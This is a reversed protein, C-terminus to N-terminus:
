KLSTNSKLLAIQQNVLEKERYLLDIDQASGKSNVIDEIEENLDDIKQQLANIKRNKEYMKYGQQYGRMFNYTLGPRKCINSIYDGNKGEKLGNDYTCFLKSGQNYGQMYLQANPKIKVKACSQNHEAIQTNNGKLADQYGVIKWDALKCEQPSMSACSSVLIALSVILITEM